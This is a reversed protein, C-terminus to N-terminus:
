KQETQHCTASLYTTALRRENPEDIYLKSWESSSRKSRVNPRVHVVLIALLTVFAMEPRLVTAESHIGAASLGAALRKGFRTASGIRIQVSTPPRPATTTFRCGPDAGISM